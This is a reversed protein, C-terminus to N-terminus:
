GFFTSFTRLILLYDSSTNKNAESPNDTYDILSEDIIITKKIEMSLLPLAGWLDKDIKKGTVPHPNPILISEAKYSANKLGKLSYNKDFYYGDDFPMIEFGLREALIKYRNYIPLPILVHKARIVRLINKLLYTSGHGLLIHDERINNIRELYNLFQKCAPEDYSSLSKIAKRIRNKVKLPTGLPNIDPVFNYM